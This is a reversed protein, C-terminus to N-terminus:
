EIEPCAALLTRISERYLALVEPNDISPAFRPVRSRLPHDVQPGRWLPHAQYVTEPLIQPEFTTFAAKLGLKRLVAARSRLIGIVTQAYDQPLYPKLSAPTAVKLLGVNSMAWAPYPDGPTDLQWTAWPLDEATLVIHTAGSQKAQRAFSKFSALSEAYRGFIITKFRRNAADAAPVAALLLGCLLCSIRM